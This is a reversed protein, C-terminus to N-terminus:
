NVCLIMMEQSPIKRKKKLILLADDLMHCWRMNWWWSSRLRWIKKKFTTAWNKWEM